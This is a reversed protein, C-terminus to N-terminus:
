ATRTSRRFGPYASIKPGDLGGPLLLRAPPYEGTKRRPDNVRSGPLSGHGLFCIRKSMPVLLGASAVLLLVCPSVGGARRSCAPPEVSSRGSPLPGRWLLLKQSDDGGM